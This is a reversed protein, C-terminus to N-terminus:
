GLFFPSPQSAAAKSQGGGFDFDEAEIRKAALREPRLCPQVIRDGALLVAADARADAGIRRELEPLTYEM